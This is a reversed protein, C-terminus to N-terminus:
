LQLSHKNSIYSISNAYLVRLLQNINTIHINYYHTNVEISILKQPKQSVTYMYIQSFTYNNGSAHM